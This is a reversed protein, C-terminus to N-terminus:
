RPSLVVTTVRHSGDQLLAIEDLFEVGDGDGNLEYTWGRLSACRECCRM